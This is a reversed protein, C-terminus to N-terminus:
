WYPKSSKSLESVDAPSAHPPSHPFMAKLSSFIMEFHFSRLSIPHTTPPNRDFLNYPIWQCYTKSTSELAPVDAPWPQPPLHHSLKKLPIFIAGSHPSRLPNLWIRPM